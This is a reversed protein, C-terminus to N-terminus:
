LAVNHFIMAALTKFSEPECVNGNMTMKFFELSIEDHISCAMM